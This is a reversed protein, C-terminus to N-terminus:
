GQLLLKEFQDILGSLINIVNEVPQPTTMDVGAKKLIEIPYDSSGTKIFEIYDSIAKKDGDLIRAALMQSAAFSTAYQYVYYQRYFHGIRLCGLDRNEPIYYDPGYYKQYIDRYMKRMNEASLAGGQEVVQHIQYEFESFMIQTYFTGMIMEIYHNLLYLKEERTKAKNLMHHILITENCTSAVEATFLSHGAYAYPESKNSYYSHMCHGLEHGLTFVDDLQDAYNLLVVPHVTYTGWSYGGSGKNQTEYVDIWRSNLALELNKVYDNGLVKMADLVLKKGEDYPIKTEVNQVLPVYMDHGELTDLGLFKKRLAVYRHVPELNSSATELLNEFVSIPIKNGDLSRELCTNYKRARTQFVDANVSSALCAGLGNEYDLYTDNYADSAAKRVERNTSRLLQSYRGRTLEIENGEEDILNPFKIDADDMMQFINGPGATVTSAMSLVEEVEESMIHEKQRILDEIMFRYVALKDNNLFEEVKANEIKLIEPNVYAQSEGLRSYIGLIRSRMEQYKGQSNDMDLNLAAYVYLRHALMGLTDSKMLCEALVDPSEGLRGKYAEMEPIREELAKMDAEWAEDSPYFESLDWKFEDAIQDRTPAEMVQAFATASVAFAFLFCLCAALMSTNRNRLDM